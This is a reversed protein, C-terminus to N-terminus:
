VVIVTHPLAPAGAPWKLARTAGSLSVFYEVDEVLGGDGGGLDATFVSRVSSMAKPTFADSSGMKRYHLTAKATATSAAQLLAIYRM